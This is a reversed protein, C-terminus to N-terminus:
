PAVLPELNTERLHALGRCWREHDKGSLLPQSVRAIASPLTRAMRGRVTSFEVDATNATHLQELKKGKQFLNYYVFAGKWESLKDVYGRDSELGVGSLEVIGM